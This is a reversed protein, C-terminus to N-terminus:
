VPKFGAKRFWHELQPWDTEGRALYYFTDKGYYETMEDRINNVFANVTTIAEKYDMVGDHQFCYDRAEKPAKTQWWEVTSKSIDGGDA